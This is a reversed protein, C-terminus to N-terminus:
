LFTNTKYCKTFKCAGSGPCVEEGSNLNRLDFSKKQRLKEKAINVQATNRVRDQVTAFREMTSQCEELISQSSAADGQEIMKILQDEESSSMDDACSRFKWTHFMEFPSFGTARLPKIRLELLVDTLRDDWDDCNENM